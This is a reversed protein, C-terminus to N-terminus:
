GIVACGIRGGAAGTPQSVYDDAKEHIILATGDADLLAPLGHEGKISVRDNIVTVSGMGNENVEINPMDGAHPGNASMKGHGMGTPNKHGGASKFDPADCKGFEHFHMAHTGAGDLGSIEVTVETGEAGMDRLKITGLKDGTATLIDQQMYRTTESQVATESCAALSVIATALILSKLRTM